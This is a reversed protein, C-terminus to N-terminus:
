DSSKGLPPSAPLVHEIVQNAHVVDFTENEFPLGDELDGWHMEIGREALMQLITRRNEEESARFLRRVYVVAHIRGERVRAPPYQARVSLAARREDLRRSAARMGM